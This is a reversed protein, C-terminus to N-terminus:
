RHKDFYEQAEVDLKVKDFVTSFLEWNTSDVTIDVYENQNYYYFVGGKNVVIGGVVKPLDGRNNNTEALYKYLAEAKATTDEVNYNIPKTDFIGVDGNKFKVLFDPQFTNMGRSYSIGFNTQMLETGNEWFWEVYKSDNLYTLFGKELENIKGTTADTILVRLPQYLSKELDLTKHTELSYGRKDEIKFKYHRGKLGVDEKLLERFKQTASNLISTFIEANQVMIRQTASIKKNRSFTNYFKSFVDVVATNIPSKSRIYALGNLNAKIIAYYAAQIDNESMKVYSIGSSFDQALDVKIAEIVAESVINDTTNIDLNMQKDEFKSANLHYGVYKDTEDFGFYDMFEKEFFSGFRSDASNYDGERSRYFSNLHTQNWVLEPTYPEHMYSMETKIKNPNYTDQTTEFEKINTFIYANDLITNEYKKAEATRLIRGVTQIEFTESHGERFKVLM